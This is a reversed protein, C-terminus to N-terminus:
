LAEHSISNIEKNDLTGASPKKTITLKYKIEVGNQEGLAKAFFDYIRRILNEKQLDNMDEFQM